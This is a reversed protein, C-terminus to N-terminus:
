SSPRRDSRPEKLSVADLATGDAERTRVLKIRRVSDPRNLGLAALGHIYTAVDIRHTALMRDLDLKKKVIDRPERRDALPIDMDRHLGKDVLTVLVLVGITILEFM